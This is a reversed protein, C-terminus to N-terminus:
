GNWKVEYRVELVRKLPMQVKKSYNKVLKDFEKQTEIYKCWKVVGFQPGCSTDVVVKTGDYMADRSEFLYTKSPNNGYEHNVGCVWMPIFDPPRRWALKAAGASLNSTSFYANATTPYWIEVVDKEKATKYTLDDTYGSFHLFLRNDINKFIKIGDFDIYVYRTGDALVVVCGPKLNDKLSVKKVESEWYAIVTGDDFKVEVLAEDDGYTDNKDSVAVVEATQGIRKELEGYDFSDYESYSPIADDTLIKVKDGVSFVDIM